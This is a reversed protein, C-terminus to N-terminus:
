LSKLQSATSSQGHVKKLAINISDPVKKQKIIFQAFFNTNLTQPLGEATINSDLM